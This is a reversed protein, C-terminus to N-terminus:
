MVSSSDGSSSSQSGSSSSKSPRPLWVRLFVALAVLVAAGAVIGFVLLPAGTIRHVAETVAQYQSGLAWGIGMYIGAWIAASVATYAGFKWFKVHVIGAAVAIAIRLGPILRGFVIVPAGYRDFWRGVTDLRGPNIHLFRGFRNVIRGGLFRSIWYLVSAGVTASAVTSAVVIAPNAKGLSVQYGMFVIALDGPLPLPLGAEEIGILVALAKYQHAELFAQLTLRLGDFFEGM